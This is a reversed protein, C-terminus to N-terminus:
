LTRGLVAVIPFHDSGGYESLRDAQVAYFSAGYFIHDIRLLPMLYGLRRSPTPYTFGFGWGAQQHANSLYQSFKQYNVSSETFNFDGAAIKRGETKQIDDILTQVQKVQGNYNYPDKYLHVNWVTVAGSPLAVTLKQAGGAFPLSRIPYRSITAFKGKYQFYVKNSQFIGSLKTFLASPDPIGQVLTLDAQQKKIIEAIPQVDEIWGKVSFSMISFQASASPINKEHRLLFLPIYRVGLALLLLCLAAALFKKKGIIALLFAPLLFFLFVPQFYSIIRISKISDGSAM